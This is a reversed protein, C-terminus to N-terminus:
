GPSVKGWITYDCLPAEGSLNLMTVWMAMPVSQYYPTMNLDPGNSETYFLLSSAFVWAVLAFFGSVALIDLNDRVVDDFVTFAAVYRELKLM